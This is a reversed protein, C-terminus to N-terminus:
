KRFSRKVFLRRESYYRNQNKKRIRETRGHKMLHKVRKNAVIKDYIYLCGALYYNYLELIDLKTEYYSCNDMKIEESEKM